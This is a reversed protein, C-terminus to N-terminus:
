YSEAAGGSSRAEGNVQHRHQLKALSVRRMGDNESAVVERVQYAIPFSPYGVRNDILRLFLMLGSRVPHHLHVFREGQDSLELTAKEVFFTEAADWGSVEVRYNTDSIQPEMAVQSQFSLLRYALVTYYISHTALRRFIAHGRTFCIDHFSGSDRIKKLQKQPRALRM